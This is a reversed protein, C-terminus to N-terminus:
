SYLLVRAVRQSIGTLIEYPITNCVRALDDVPLNPGFIIVEDGVQAEPLASLDIMTMDMCVKGLITAPKDHVHVSYKQNGACRRLGDAYGINITGIRMAYPATFARDYGVSAGAAIDHIQSIRAKLTHVPQLL